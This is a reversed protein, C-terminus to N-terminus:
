SPPPRHAELETSLDEVLSMAEPEPLPQDSVQLPRGNRLVARIVMQRGSVGRREVAFGDIDDWALRRRLLTRRVKVGESGVVIGAGWADVGSALCLLCMLGALVRLPLPFSGIAWLLFFPALCAAITAGRVARLPRRWREEGM